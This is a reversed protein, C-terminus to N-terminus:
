ILKGIPKIAQSLVNRLHDATYSQQEALPGTQANHLMDAFHLYGTKINGRNINRHSLEVIDQDNPWQDAVLL